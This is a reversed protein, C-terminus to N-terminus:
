FTKYDIKYQQLWYNVAKWQPEYFDHAKSFSFLTGQAQSCSSQM